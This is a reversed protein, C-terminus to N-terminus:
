WRPLKSVPDGPAPIIRASQILFYFLTCRKRKEWGKCSSNDSYSEQCTSCCVASIWMAM